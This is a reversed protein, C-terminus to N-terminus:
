RDCRSDPNRKHTGAVRVKGLVASRHLHNVAEHNGREIGVSVMWERVDSELTAGVHAQSREKHQERQGHPQNACEHDLRSRSSRNEKTLLPGPLEASGKEHKFEAAHIYVNRFVLARGFARLVLANCGGSSKESSGAQILKRLQEVNQSSM